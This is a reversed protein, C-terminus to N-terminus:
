IVYLSKGLVLLCYFLILIKHEFISGYFCTWQGVILVGLVCHVYLCTRVGAGVYVCARVCVHVCTPGVCPSCFRANNM